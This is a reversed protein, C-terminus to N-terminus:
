HISIAIFRKLFNTKERAGGIKRFNIDFGGGGWKRVFNFFGLSKLAQLMVGLRTPIEDNRLLLYIGRAFVFM